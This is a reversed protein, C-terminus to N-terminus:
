YLRETPRTLKSLLTNAPRIEHPHYVCALRVCQRKVQQSITPTSAISDVLYRLKLPVDFALKGRWPFIQPSM